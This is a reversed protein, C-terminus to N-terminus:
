KIKLVQYAILADNKKYYILHIFDGQKFRNPTDYALFNTYLNGSDENLKAEGILTSDTFKANKITNDFDLFQLEDDSITIIKTCFSTTKEEFPVVASNLNCISYRSTKSTPPRNNKQFIYIVLFILLLLFILRKM